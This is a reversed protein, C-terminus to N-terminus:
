PPGPSRLSKTVRNLDSYASSRDKYFQRGGTEALIAADRNRLVVVAGQVLGRAGPHRNEYLSLGHELAQNAIQQVAADVTSYIQIRGQRLDKVSLESQRSTLEDLINDVVASAEITKDKHQAVVAIPRQKARRAQDPSIFGRAAMLALTQNRRQLVRETESSSPAYYRASKAIGALLAAKDADEITLTGLPRGFYYEAGKAFGYQGNGMYILSAYRALIEEKARRKSGFHIQMQEEVWLSLRIEEVKRVLMNVMRAGIVSSLLRGPAGGHRLQDSNEQATMTKLFYGRVLQQTITSGGQPFIASNNAADRRGMRALRGILNGFKVKCLM